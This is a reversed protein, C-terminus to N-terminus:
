DKTDPAPPIFSLRGLPDDPAGLDVGRLSSWDENFRGASGIQYAPRTLETPAPSPEPGTGPVDYAVSVTQLALGLVAISVGGPPRVSAAFSMAAELPTLRMNAVARSPF